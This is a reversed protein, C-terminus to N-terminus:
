RYTLTKLTFNLKMNTVTDWKVEFDHEKLRRALSTVLAV